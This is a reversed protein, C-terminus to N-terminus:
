PLGTIEIGTYYHTVIDQWSSGAAAMANAGYQSMGVGHGYGVVSFRFVGASEEV